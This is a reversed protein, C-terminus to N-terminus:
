AASKVAPSCPPSSGLGSRRLADAHRLCQSDNMSRNTGQAHKTWFRFAAWHLKDCVHRVREFIGRAEGMALRQSRVHIAMMEVGDHGLLVQFVRVQGGKLGSNLGPIGPSHLTRARICEPHGSNSRHEGLSFAAGRAAALPSIHITELVTTNECFHQM